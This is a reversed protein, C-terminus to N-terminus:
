LEYNCEMKSSYNEFTLHVKLILKPSAM